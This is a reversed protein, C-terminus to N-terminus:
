PVVEQTANGLSKLYEIIQLMEEEGIQGRFSPMNAEYGAPVDESPSIIADRIFREDALVSRGDRLRVQTGFLGELRPAHVTAQAGHCGDCGLQRYLQAGRAAMTPATAHASLWDEFAAPEMVVVRGVMLSHSTGCFQTCFLHYEGPRNATFLLTTYRGPLVDQKIRFSPISLSHIVDQSTMV